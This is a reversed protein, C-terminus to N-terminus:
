LIYIHRFQDVPCTTETTQLTLPDFRDLPHMGFTTTRRFPGFSDILDSTDESDLPDLSTKLAKPSKLIQPELQDLPTYQTKLTRIPIISDSPELHKEAEIPDYPKFHELM